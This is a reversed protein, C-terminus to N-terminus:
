TQSVRVRALTQGYVRRIIIDHCTKKMDKVIWVVENNKERAIKIKNIM